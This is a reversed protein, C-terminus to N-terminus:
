GPQQLEAGGCLWGAELVLDDVFPVGVGAIRASTGTTLDVTYLQENISPAVILDQRQPPRSATLDFERSIVAVPGSLRLTSSPGLAATGSVPM